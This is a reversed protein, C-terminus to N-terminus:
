DYFYHALAEVCGQTANSGAIYGGQKFVVSKVEALSNGPCALCHAVETTLMSLDNHNDGVALVHDPVIQLYQSLAQLATGKSYHHHTFRLYVSNRQYHLEPFKKLRPDLWECIYNMEEESSSVIGAPDSPESVWSASTSANLFKKAEKFFKEHVKYLKKHDKTRNQNWDGLDIWRNHPSRHYIEGERAVIYDPIHRINHQTLGELTQFLSRGTNIVWAAGRERLDDIMALLERMAVTNLETEVFTGDFDFCIIAKPPPPPTPSSSM